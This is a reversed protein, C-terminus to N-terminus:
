REAEVARATSTTSMISIRDIWVAPRPLEREVMALSRRWEFEDHIRAHGHRGLETGFGPAKVLCALQGSLDSLSGPAALLGDVGHRILEGPGGCLYAVVPKQNAWAELLVLGFSDTRSPLAFVDIGAFFDRKQSESLPGMRIVFKSYRGAEWVRDFAPMSPGALVLKLKAGRDILRECAHLLDISGKEPSLNALHGIVTADGANWSDRVAGRDGGTCEIADVGLGQRIVRDHPVGLRIVADEELATQVFIRDAEHLIWCLAPQLYQRRTSEDSLHLFPTVHFPVGRRRALRLGCLIPWAYPFAMAHVASLPGDYSEVDRLMGPCIPNCPLCWARLWPPTLMTLTKLAYRRLPFTLPRYRRCRPSITTAAAGPHWLHALDTATTTWVTVDHGSVTLSAALRAAYAEAGGLAPPYRHTFLAVAM